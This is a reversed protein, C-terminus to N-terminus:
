LSHDGECAGPRGQNGRQSVTAHGDPTGGAASTGPCWSTPCPGTWASTAGRRGGRAGPLDRKKQRKSKREIPSQRRENSDAQRGLELERELATFGAPPMICLLSSVRTRMERCLLGTLMVLCVCAEAALGSSRGEGQGGGRCSFNTSTSMPSHGVGAMVHLSQLLSYASSWLQRERRGAATGFLVHGRASSLPHLLQAAMACSYM